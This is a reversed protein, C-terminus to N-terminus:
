SLQITTKLTIYLNYPKEINNDKIEQVERALYGLATVLRQDTDEKILIPNAIAIFMDCM